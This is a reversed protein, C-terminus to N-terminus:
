DSKLTSLYAIIAIRTDHDMIGAHGMNTGPVTGTPDAIFQNIENATWHGKQAKLADSYPFDPESAKMRGVIGALNPAPYRGPSSDGTATAHCGGCIEAAIRGTELDANELAEPDVPEIRRPAAGNERLLSVMQDRDKSAALHIPPHDLKTRADINAGRDLLLIAAEIRGREAADHLPTKLHEGGQLELEAGADLLRTMVELHNGRAAIQLASGLNTPENPDAGHELLYAVVPQHGRQAAFYLPHALMEPEANAGEPLLTRLADLDGSTAPSTLDQASVSAPCVIGLLLVAGVLCTRCDSM